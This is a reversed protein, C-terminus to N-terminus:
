RVCDGIRTKAGGLSIAISANSLKEVVEFADWWRIVISFLMFSTMATMGGVYICVACSAVLNLLNQTKGSGFEHHM